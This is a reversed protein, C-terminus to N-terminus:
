RQSVKTPGPTQTLSELAYQWLVEYPILEVEYAQDSTSLPESRLKELHVKTHRRIAILHFNRKPIELLMHIFCNSRFHDGRRLYRSSYKEIAEMSDILEMFSGTKIKILIQVILVPINYGRKDLSFDPVENLLKNLRFDELETPIMVKGMIGLYYLYAEYLKWTEQRKTSQLRLNRSATARRYIAVCEEYDGLHLYLLFSLDLVNHWRISGPEFRDMCYQSQLKGQDYRELRINALLRYYHFQDILVQNFHPKQGLRDLACQSELLLGAYDRKARHINIGLSHFLWIFRGSQVDTYRGGLDQYEAELAHIEEASPVTKSHLLHSSDVGALEAEDEAQQVYKLELFLKRYKLYLVTQGSSQGHHNKLWKVFELSLSTFEYKRSIKLTNRILTLAPTAVNRALLLRVMVLRKHCEMFAQQASNFKSKRGDIFLVANYLRDALNNRLRRYPKHEASQGFFYQAADADSRLSGELIREYLTKLQDPGSRDDWLRLGKLKNKNALHCLEVLSVWDAM